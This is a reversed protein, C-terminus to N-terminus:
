AGDPASRCPEHDHSTIYYPTVVPTGGRVVFTRATRELVAGGSLPMRQGPRARTTWAAARAIGRRDMVVGARAALEPWVIGLGDSALSALPQADIVLAGEVCRVGLGDVLVRLAHRWAAARTGIASLDASFGPRVAEAARLLDARLRNRLFRADGNTPDDLFAVEHRAAYDALDARGVGLLPRTVGASPAAMAALGRASAGRLIRMAVTEAQDDLTHATVITARREKAIARLWTWRAERWAAETRVAPPDIAPSEAAVSGALAGSVASRGAMVPVSRRLCERVVLEVAEAAAAGSGHDFTAVAPPDHPRYQLFAHLLAMSDRGGSVALLYRDPPLARLAKAIAHVISVYNTSRRARCWNSCKAASCCTSVAYPPGRPVKIAPTPM